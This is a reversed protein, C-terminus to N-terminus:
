KGSLSFKEPLVLTRMDPNHFRYGVWPQTLIYQPQAPDDELKQRLAKIYTRLFARSRNAGSGWASRTLREHTIASGANAM